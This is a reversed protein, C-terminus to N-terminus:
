RYNTGYGNFMVFGNKKNGFAILLLANILANFEFEIRAVFNNTKSLMEMGITESTRIRTQFVSCIINLTLQHM